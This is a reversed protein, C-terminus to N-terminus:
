NKDRKALNIAQQLSCCISYTHFQAIGEKQQLNPVVLPPGYGLVAVPVM